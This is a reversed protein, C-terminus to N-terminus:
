DSDDSTQQQRREQLQLLDIMKLPDQGSTLHLIDEPVGYRGFPNARIGTNEQVYRFKLGSLQNTTPSQAAPDAPDQLPEEAWDFLLSDTTPGYPNLDVLSVRDKWQRVVDFVYDDLPFKTVIQEKFYSAM